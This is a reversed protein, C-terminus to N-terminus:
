TFPRTLVYGPSTADLSCFGDLRITALGIRGDHDAAPANHPVTFGSYFLWRRGDKEVPASPSLEAHLRVGWGQLQQDAGPAHVAQPRGHPGLAPRRSQLGVAYGDYVVTGPQLVVYGEWARDPVLVPNDEYKVPHHLSRWVNETHALM